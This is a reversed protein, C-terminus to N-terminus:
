GRQRDPIEGRSRPSGVGLPGDDLESARREVEADVHEDHEGGRRSRQPAPDVPQGTPDDGDGGNRQRSAEEGAGERPAPECLAEGACRRAQAERDPVPVAESRQDPEGHRQQEERRDGAPAHPPERRDADHRREADGEVQGGRATRHKRGHRPYHHEDGAVGFARVRQECRRRRAEARRQPIARTDVRWWATSPGNSDAAARESPLSAASMTTATHTKVAIPYSSSAAQAPRRRGGSRRFRHNQTPDAAIRTAATAIPTRRDYSLKVASAPGM